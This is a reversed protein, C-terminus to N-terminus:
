KGLDMDQCGNCGGPSSSPCSSLGTEASCDHPVLIAPGVWSTEPSFLSLNSPAPRNRPSLPSNRGMGCRTREQPFPRAWGDRSLWSGVGLGGMCTVFAVAAVCMCMAKEQATVPCLRAVAGAVCMAQVHMCSAGSAHAQRMVAQEGLTWPCVGVLAGAGQGPEERGQRDPLLSELHAPCGSGKPTPKGQLNLGLEEKTTSGQEKGGSKSVPAAPSTFRSGQLSSLLQAGSSIGCSGGLCLQVLWSFGLVPQKPDPLTEQPKGAERSGPLLFCTLQPM